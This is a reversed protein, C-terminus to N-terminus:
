IRVNIKKISLKLLFSGIAILILLHAYISSFGGGKIMTIKLAEIYWRAPVINSIIRLPFPLGEIPFILGSLLLTPLMLGAGAMTIAVQQTPAVSSILLGLSLAAYIYIITLLFILLPNGIIPLELVNCSMITIILIDIFSVIFYATAKSLLIFSPKLSSMLLLDMTGIEKEKVVSISTMLACILMMLLGAIGPVVNYSSRLLPNYLMKIESIIATQYNIATFDQHKSVLSQIYTFIRNALNPDSADIIIQVKNNLNNQITFEPPFYIVFKSKGSKLQNEIDPTYKINETFSFLESESIMNIIKQSENKNSFDLVSFPINKVDTSVAFGLILLMVIPLVLMITLTLPDRVIHIFEKKFLSLFEKM